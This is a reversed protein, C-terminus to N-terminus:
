PEPVTWRLRGTTMVGAMDSVVWNLEYDGPALPGIAGQVMNPMPGRAPILRRSRGDADILTLAMQDPAIRETFTLRIVAQPLRHPVAHAQVLDLYRSQLLAQAMVKSSSAFGGGLFLTLLLVRLFSCRRADVGSGRSLLSRDSVPM